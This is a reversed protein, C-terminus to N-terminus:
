KSISRFHLKISIIRQIIHWCDSCRKIKIDNYSTHIMVIKSAMSAMLTLFSFYRKENWVTEFIQRWPNTDFHNIQNDALLVRCKISEAAYLSIFLDFLEDARIPQNESETGLSSCTIKLIESWKISDWVTM